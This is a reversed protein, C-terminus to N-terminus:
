MMTGMDSTSPPLSPPATLTGMGDASTMGSGDDPDPGPAGAPEGMGVPTTPGLSCLNAWTEGPGPSEPFLVTGNASGVRAVCAAPGEAALMGMGMGDCLFVEKFKLEATAPAYCSRTFYYHDDFATTYPVDGTPGIGRALDEWNTTIAFSRGGLLPNWAVHDLVLEPGTDTPQTVADALTALRVRATGTIENKFGALTLWWPAHNAPDLTFGVLRYTVAKGAPGSAFGALLAGRGAFAPVVGHLADLDLGLRGTGRHMLAGEAMWGRAVVAKTSPDAGVAYALLRWSFVNMHEHTVTVLFEAQTCGTGTGVVCAAVPGYTMQDGLGPAGGGADVVARLDQVFLRVGDNLEKIADRAALLDNVVSGPASTAPASLAPEVSRAEPALAGEAAGGQLELTLGQVDPTAAAFADKKSGNGGCAALALALALLPQAKRM